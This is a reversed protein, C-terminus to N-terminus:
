RDDRSNFSASHVPWAVIDEGNRRVGITSRSSRVKPQVIEFEYGDGFTHICAEPTATEVPWSWPTNQAISQESVYRAGLDWPPGASPRVAQRDPVGESANRSRELDALITRARRLSVEIKEVQGRQDVAQAELERILAKIEEIAAPAGTAPKAVESKSQANATQGAVFGLRALVSVSLCALASWEAVM